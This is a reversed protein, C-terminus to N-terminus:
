TAEGFQQEYDHIFSLFHESWGSVEADWVGKYNIGHKESSVDIIYNYQGFPNPKRKDPFDCDQSDSFIIIRDPSLPVDAGQNLRELNEQIAELCQRTFIGGGGVINHSSKIFDALQFGRYIPSTLVTKHKHAWDDGATIYVLACECMERALIALAAGIDRRSYSSNESIPETMSGSVDVIFVSLGPLKPTQGLLELMKKELESRLEPYHDAAKLFDVPVLWNIRIANLGERIVDIDVSDKKMNALNRLFALAPLTGTTILREWEAKRDQPRKSLAVEWTDAGTLTGELLEKWLHSQQEDRPKPHTMMPVARLKVQKNTQHYKRLQYEDFKAFARRLGIKSQNSLPHKGDKWYIALYETADDGRHIIRPLLDGVLGKHTDHKTMEVAIFLPIHRLKQVNRAEVALDFVVQAPVQPILSAIHDTLSVGDLYAMDEWLMCSLVARRLQLEASQQAAVAGRGGALRLVSKMNVPKNNVTAM